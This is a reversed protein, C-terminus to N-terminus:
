LISFDLKLLFCINIFDKLMIKYMFVAQVTIWLIFSPLKIKLLLYFISLSKLIIKKLELATNLLM